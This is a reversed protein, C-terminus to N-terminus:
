WEIHFHIHGGVTLTTRMDIYFTQMEVDDIFCFYKIGGKGTQWRQHM